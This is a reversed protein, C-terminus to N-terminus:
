AAYSSLLILIIWWSLCIFLFYYWLLKLKLVNPPNVSFIYTDVYNTKRFIQAILGGLAVLALLSYLLHLLIIFQSIDPTIRYALPLLIYLLLLFFSLTLLPKVKPFEQKLIYQRAGGFSVFSLTLILTRLMRLLDMPAVPAGDMRSHIHIKYFAYIFSISMSIIGLVLLFGWPEYRKIKKEDGM